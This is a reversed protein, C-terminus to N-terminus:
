KVRRGHSAKKGKRYKVKPKKVCKSKKKVFGKRCGTVRKSAHTVAPAVNGAGSFTASSPAGFIAPQPTPGAKCADGTSCPPPVLAAAPACPASSTCEHADYLDISTDFDRSSLRSLTLFFVDGGTESAGMFASEESSTGASILAVCGGMSESFVVSASRGYGPPRCGGVGVPEYEYVDEKGNVDAPVLADSSNFFLRGDDSLYRSQSFSSLGMTTTWGPINAAFWREKWNGTYDVLREQYVNGELLGVPRAGTPNCSSCVLRRTSLDYLFVEEDRVGSNADRNEYGTLSRDSMFALYRGGPSVRSTMFGPNNNDLAGWSPADKGALAAIFVPPSWVSAGADYREVYLNCTAGPPVTEESNHGLNAYRTCHGPVAGSALVGNAVFYINSGDESSGIVNRVSASEGVNGDVTLDFLKGALAEGSGSTVEFEYLDKQGGEAGEESATSNSTLRNSSTFFVRSGDASATRYSFNVSLPEPVGQAANVQVTEGSGGSVMDRLYLGKASSFILRSGDNSIARRVYLHSGESPTGLGAAIPKGNPLVSALQLQGGSWEYLYAGSEVVPPVPTATLQLSSRVVVHSLDPSASAYQVAGFSAGLGSTSLAGFKTGPPVNGATVLAKYEGNAERLYITKEADAPLPPLPTTGIPEVLGLSLDSSFLAYESASEPPIEKPGDNHPTTIDVTEWDDPTRRTSIVQANEPARSGAPNAVFPSVAAYTIAGGDVSAQIDAGAPKGLAIIGSGHKDPPSVLEWARGDSLSIETAAGQTTFAQDPGEIAGTALANSALVRFYYTTGPLLGQLHVSTSVDGEGSGVDTGPPLPLDTCAAPSATCSVTGYQFYASTDTGLPNIQAELTASTATVTSAAESDILVRALTMFTQDAGDVTGGESSAVVRFHYMTSPQLGTAVASVAQEAFGSSIEGDPIPVRAGYAASPGYEFHYTTAFGDPNIQANLAAHTSGVAESSQAVVAPPGSTLLTADEGFTSGFSSVGVLRYHYTTNAVLGSLTTEAHVSEAASGADTGPLAPSVSGYSVGAGYQFYYHTDTGDPSLAGTLKAGTPTVAEAPGTSLADVAPLTAFSMQASRHTGNVNTASLRFFYTGGAALAGIEASVAVPASGSGPAPSCAVTHPYVGTETGWEFVCSSVALADPNVAGQLVAATKTVGSPAEASVDALVVDPGFVDVVSSGSDGDAVYLRGSSPDVAVAVPAEFPGAPTGTVQSVFQEETSAGFEDVVRHETEAAYVHGSSQDMGVSVNHARDGLSGNPTSAGSWLPPVLNGSSDFVYIASHFEEENLSGSNDGVYANGTLANVAVSTIPQNLGSRTGTDGFQTVYAGSSSFVDVESQQAVYLEGTSQDVALGALFSSFPGGNQVSPPTGTLQSLYEGSPSFVDVVRKGLESFDVDSVYIDGTANNVAVGTLKSFPGSPTGTLRSGSVYSESASFSLPTGSSSFRAIVVPSGLRSDAVYLEGAPGVTLATAEGFGTLQSLYPHSLFASAPSSSLACVCILACLSALVTKL